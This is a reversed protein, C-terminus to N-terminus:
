RTGYLEHGLHRLMEAAMRLIEQYYGDEDESWQTLFDAVYEHPQQNPAPDYPELPPYEGYPETM